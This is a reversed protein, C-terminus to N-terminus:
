EHGWISSYGLKGPAILSYESINMHPNKGPVKDFSATLRIQCSVCIGTPMYVNEDDYNELWREKFTAKESNSAPGRTAKLLCALCVKARNEEHNNNLCM